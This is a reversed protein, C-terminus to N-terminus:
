SVRWIVAPSNVKAKALVSRSDQCPQLCRKANQVKGLMCTFQFGLRSVKKYLVHDVVTELAEWSQIKGAEIARDIHGSDKNGVISPTIVPPVTIELDNPVGAKVLFSGLELVAVEQLSM